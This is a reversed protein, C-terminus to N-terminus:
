ASPGSEVLLKPSEGSYNARDRESAAIDEHGWGGSGCTKSGVAERRIELGFKLTDGIKLPVTARSGPRRTM